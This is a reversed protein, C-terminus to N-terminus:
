TLIALAIVAVLGVASVILVPTDPDQQPALIKHIGALYGSYLNHSLCRIYNNRSSYGCYVYARKVGGIQKHKEM